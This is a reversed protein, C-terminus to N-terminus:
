VNDNDNNAGLLVTELYEPKKKVFQVSSSSEAGGLM